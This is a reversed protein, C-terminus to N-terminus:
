WRQGLVPRVSGSRGGVAAAAPTATVSPRRAASQYYSMLSGGGSWGALVVTDFRQRLKSVVAGLDKLVKEM